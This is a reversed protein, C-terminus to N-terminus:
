EAQDIFYYLCGIECVGYLVTLSINAWCEKVENSSSQVIDCLNMCQIKGFNAQLLPEPDLSSPDQTKTTEIIPITLTLTLVKPSFSIETSTLTDKDLSTTNAVLLERSKVGYDRANDFIIQKMDTSNSFEPRMLERKVDFLYQAELESTTDNQPSELLEAASIQTATSSNNPKIAFRSTASFKMKFEVDEGCLEKKAAQYWFSESLQRFEPIQELCKGFKSFRKVAAACFQGFIGDYARKEKLPIALSTNFLIFISLIFIGFKM